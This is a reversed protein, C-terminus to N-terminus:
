GGGSGIQSLKFMPLFMSLVLIGVVGGMIVLIAPEILSTFRTIMVDIKEKYFLSVRRLMKGLEGVEEGVTVMQVILVPFIGSKELPGALPKGAQVEKKIQEISLQYVRNDMTKAVIDLANLISSGSDLLTSLSDAFTECSVMEILDGILPTKLLMRDFFLKGAPTQTASKLLIVFVVVGLAIYLLHHRLLNSALIVYKTLTPLEINFSQLIGAFIPVIKITFVLIAIISVTILIMPYIMASIIKQRVKGSSELFVTIQNLSRALHGSAEGTGVLNLWFNSFVKPHKGLASRFTQGAEIDKKIQELIKLLKESEIQTILINLSKLLPVGAELMISMQHSLMVMDQSTIKSHFHRKRQLTLGQQQSKLKGEKAKQEEISTVLLGKALLTNLAKERTQEELMGKQIKGDKGRATYAFVSM